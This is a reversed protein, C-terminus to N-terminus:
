INYFIVTINLACAVVPVSVGAASSTRLLVVRQYKLSVGTPPHWVDLRGPHALREVRDPVTGFVLVTWLELLAVMSGYSEM